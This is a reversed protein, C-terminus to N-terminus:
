PHLTSHGPRFGANWGKLIQHQEILITLRQTLILTLGKRLTEILSIPRTNKIDGDFTAKKSLLIM